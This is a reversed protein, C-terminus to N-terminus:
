TDYLIKNLLNDMNESADVFFFDFLIQTILVTDYNKTFVLHVENKVDRMYQYRKGKSFKHGKKSKYDRKCLCVGDTHSSM